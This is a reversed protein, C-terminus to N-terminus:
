PFLREGELGAFPDSRTLRDARQYVSRGAEGPTRREFLSRKWDTPASSKHGEGHLIPRGKELGRKEM